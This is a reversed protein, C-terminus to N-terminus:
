RADGGSRGVSIAVAAAAVAASALLLAALLALWWRQGAVAARELRQYYEALQWANGVSGAAGTAAGVQWQTLATRTVSGLPLAVAALAGAVVTALPGVSRLLAGLALGGGAGLLLLGPASAATGTGAPLLALVGVTAALLGAVIAARRRSEPLLAGAVGAAAGAVAASGLLTGTGGALGVQGAGLMGYQRIAVVGGFTAGAAATTWAVAATASGVPGRGQATLAAGTPGGRAQRATVAAIVLLSGALVLMGLVAVRGGAHPAQLVLLAAPIGAALPLLAALDIWRPFLRPRRDAVSVAALTLGLAAALALLWPYPRLRERWDPDAGAGHYALWPAVAVSGVVAAAWAAALAPRLRASAAGVLAATAVLLCGAGVGHLVRALDIDGVSDASQGRWHGMAVAFLGGLLVVWPPLARALWAALPAALCAAAGALVLMRGLQDANVPLRLDALMGPLVPSLRDVLVVLALPVASVIVLLSCLTSLGPRAHAVPEPPGSVPDGVEMTEIMVGGAVGPGM